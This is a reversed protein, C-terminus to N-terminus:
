GRDGVLIISKIANKGMLPGELTGVRAVNRSLPIQFNEPGGMLAGPFGIITHKFIGKKLADLVCTRVVQEVVGIPGKNTISGKGCRRRASMLVIKVILGFQNM